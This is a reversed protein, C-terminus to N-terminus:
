QQFYAKVFAIDDDTAFKGKCIGSMGELVLAPTNPMVRIVRTQGLINEIKETTIGAAISVILKESTLENKIEHLIDNVCNPKVAIFIVNSDIVLM